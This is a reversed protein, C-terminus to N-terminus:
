AAVVRLKCEWWIGAGTVLSLWSTEHWPLVVIPTVVIVPGDNVIDFLAVFNIADMGESSM